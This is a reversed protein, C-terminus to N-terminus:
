IKSCTNKSLIFIILITHTTIKVLTLLTNITRFTWNAFRPIKYIRNAFLTLVADIRTNLACSRCISAAFTWRILKVQQISSTTLKTIASKCTAVFAILWTCDTILTNRAQIKEVRSCVLTSRTYTRAFCAHWTSLTQRTNIISVDKVLWSKRTERTASGHWMACVAEM